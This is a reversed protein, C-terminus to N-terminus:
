TKLNMHLPTLPSHIISPTNTKRSFRTYRPSYAFSVGRNTDGAQGGGATTGGHPRSLGSMQHM